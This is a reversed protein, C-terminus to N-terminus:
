ILGRERCLEQFTQRQRQLVKQEDYTALARARGAAGMQQRLDANLILTNLKEALTDADRPPVLYGTSEDLVEERCGRINTAVVPLSMAMAEIISRPMGERYSPLTFIDSAALIEPINACRGAFVIQRRYEEPIAVLLSDMISDRDTQLTDGIALFRVNNHTACLAVAAKVWEIYGKEAVVRGVMTVVIDDQSFGHRARLLARNEATYKDPQHVNMDVGNGITKIHNPKAIRYHLAAIRDEESQTFIYDSFWGGIKEMGIFLRKVIPKMGDHFYFGHATYVIVPVGALRAAIRGLLAAIPTHVHVIDYRNKKMLKRLSLLSKLNAVPHIKRDIKVFHIPCLKEALHESEADRSCVADVDYYKQMEIILPSLLKDVTIGVACVQLMKLKQADPLQKECAGTGTAENM